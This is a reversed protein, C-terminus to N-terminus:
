YTEIFKTSKGYWEAKLQVSPPEPANPPALFNSLSQKDREQLEELKPALIALLILVGKFGAYLDGLFHWIGGLKKFLGLGPGTKHVSRAPHHFRVMAPM